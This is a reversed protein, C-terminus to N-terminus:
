SRHQRDKSVRDMVLRSSLFFQAKSSAVLMALNWIRALAKSGQVNSHQGPGESDRTGVTLATCICGVRAGERINQLVKSDFDSAIIPYSNAIDEFCDVM